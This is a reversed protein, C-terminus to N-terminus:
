FRKTLILQLSFRNRYNEPIFEERELMVIPQIFYNKEIRIKSNIGIRFANLRQFSDNNLFFYPLTGYQLDLQVFSETTEFNRRFNLISSSLWDSNTEALYHRYEIKWHDLTLGLHGTFLLTKNENDFYIYRSGLSSSIKKFDQYYEAGFKYQPFIKENASFGSNLYLYSKSKVKLYADIEGQFDNINNSSGYNIRGIFTNNNVKRGYELHTINIASASNEFDSFLHGVAITNKKKKLIQTELYKAVEPNSDVSYLAKLAEDHNGMEEYSQAIQLYYFSNNSPFKKLGEESMQIVEINKKQSYYIKILLDFADQYEPKETVIESAIKKSVELNNSWYNVQALYLKYDLNKPNQELLRNILQIAEDYKQESAKTKAENFIKEENVQTFGVAYSLLFVVLAIKKIQLSFIKM